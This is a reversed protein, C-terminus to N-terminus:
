EAPKRRKWVEWFRPPPPPEPVSKSLYWWWRERPPDNMIWYQKFNNWGIEDVVEQARGKVFGDLEVVYAWFQQTDAKMEDLATLTDQIEDRFYLMMPATLGNKGINSVYKEYDRIVENAYDRLEQEEDVDEDEEVEFTPPPAPRVPGQPRWKLQPGPGSLARQLADWADAVSGHRGAPLVDLMKELVGMVM